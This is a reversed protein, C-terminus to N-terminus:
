GCFMSLLASQAIPWALFTLPLWTRRPIIATERAPRGLLADMRWALTDAAAMPLVVASRTAPRALAVLAAALALAGASNVAATDARAERAALFREAAVGRGFPALDRLLALGALMLPDAGRVHAGEHALAAALEDDGLRALAGASVFATPRLVGAVFCDPEHSPLERARLGGAARALRPGAPRSIRFLRAVAAQRQLLRALAWALPLCAVAPTVRYAVYGRWTHFPQLFLWSNLVLALAVLGPAAALSLAAVTAAQSRPLARAARDTALAALAPMVLLPWLNHIAGGFVFRIPESFPFDGAVHLGSFLSPPHPIM